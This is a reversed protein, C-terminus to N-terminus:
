YHAQQLKGNRWFFAYFHGDGNIRCVYGVNDTKVDDYKFDVVTKRTKLYSEDIIGWKNASNQVAALNRYFDKANIFIFDIVINGKPDEFGYKKETESKKAKLQTAKSIIDKCIKLNEASTKEDPAIKLLSDYRMAARAINKNKYLENAENLLILITQIKTSWTKADADGKKYVLASDFNNKSKLYEAGAFATKGKEMFKKYKDENNVSKKSNDTTQETGNKEKKGFIKDKFVFGVVVVLIVGVILLIPIIKSKGGSTPPRSETSKQVQKEPTVKKEEVIPQQLKVEPIIQKKEESIPPIVPIQEKKVEPIPPIAEETKPFEPPTVDNKVSQKLVNPIVPEEVIKTEVTKQQDEPKVSIVPNYTQGKLQANIMKQLEESSIGLEEAKQSLLKKDADMIEGESCASQILMKLIDLSM